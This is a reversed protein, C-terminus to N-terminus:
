CETQTLLEILEAAAATPNDSAAVASSVAIRTAGASIVERVNEASLGGIAFWPIQQECAVERVYRIGPFEDFAKTSSPFVPGAGLYDAEDAIAQRAQDMRHTSIGILQGPLLIQRADAIQLDDQGLHVGDADSLRAIEPHDNIICLSGAERCAASIWRARRLIEQAPLTKERLQIMMRFATSSSSLLTTVFQKWPLRCSEETVLVCLVTRALMQHRIEAATSPALDPTANDASHIREHHQKEITYLEYRCQKITMAFPLSVVKSFEELSRLSEQARRYNATVVDNLSGRSQEGTTTIQTGVDALTDRSSIGFDPSASDNLRGQLLSQEAEVIRHRMSKLQRTIEQSNIAFRSHDELVRLGERVRNLGADLIRWVAKTECNIVQGCTSQAARLDSDNRMVDSHALEHTEDLSAPRSDSASELELRFDVSLPPLTETEESGLEDALLSLSIGARQLCEKVTTCHQIIGVLLHSTSVGESGSTSRCVASAHELAASLDDPIQRQDASYSPGCHDDFSHAIMGPESPHNIAKFAEASLGSASLMEFTIGLNRLSASALSEDEILLVLLIDGSSCEYLGTSVLQTCRSLLRGVAETLRISPSLLAM